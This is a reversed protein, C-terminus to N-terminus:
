EHDLPQRGKAPRPFLVAGGLVGMLAALAWGLRRPRNRRSAM